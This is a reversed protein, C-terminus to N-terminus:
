ATTCKVCTAEAKVDPTGSPKFRDGCTGCTLSATALWAIYRASPHFHANGLDNMEAVVADMEAETGGKGTVEELHEEYHQQYTAM